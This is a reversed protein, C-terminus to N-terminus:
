LVLDVQEQLKIQFVEVVVAVALTLMELWIVLEQLQLQVEKDVAVLDQLVLDVM